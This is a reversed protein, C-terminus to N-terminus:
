KFIKQETSCLPNPVVLSHTIWSLIKMIKTIEKKLTECKKWKFWELSKLTESDDELGGKEWKRKTRRVKARKGGWAMLWCNWTQHTHTELSKHKDRTDRTHMASLHIVTQHLYGRQAGTPKIYSHSVLEGERIKGSPWRGGGSAGACSAIVSAPARESKGACRFRRRTKGSGTYNFNTRM